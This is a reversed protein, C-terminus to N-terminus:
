HLIIPDDSLGRVALGRISSRKVASIIHKMYVAGAKKDRCANQKYITKKWGSLAGPDNLPTAAGQDDLFSINKEPSAVFDEPICGGVSRIQIFLLLTSRSAPM